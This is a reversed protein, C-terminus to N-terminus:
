SGRKDLITRGAETLVWKGLGDASEAGTILGMTHLRDLYAGGTMGENRLWGTTDWMKRAFISPALHDGCEDIIRLARLMSESPKRRRKRAIWADADALKLDVLSHVPSGPRSQVPGVYKATLNGVIRVDAGLKSDPWTKPVVIVAYQADPVKARKEAVVREIDALKM